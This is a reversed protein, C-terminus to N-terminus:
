PKVVPRGIAYYSFGRERIRDLDYINRGDFIVPQALLEKMRGFDPQRYSNWETVIFLADAGELAAYENGSWRIRDGFIQQTNEIAVPDTACVEVGLELLNEIIQLAPAERIDDTRPKFSLGWIAVKLGKTAGGFHETFRRILTTKQRQNVAVVSELITLEHGNERGTGILARLDKPFCSGGFGTGPFIFKPGIRPDSGIGRRVLEVDAGVADCLGAIENMFSIRTALMANAAYKTMESSRVDMFVMRNSTRNFPAYVREMMDRARKSSTGVIIRNPRLFDEVAHGEKLFEPNSVVDFPHEASESIIERVRDCTGVPVTSKCVVVKYDNLNAAVTRAVSEVHQLDASGDEGQPTGVAVFVVDSERVGRGVDTTFELRGAAFNNRLIDELGPEYIPCQGENLRAIKQEDLDSCIVHNGSGAVCCGVVLGVYGTGVVCIKM